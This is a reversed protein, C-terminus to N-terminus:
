RYWNHYKILFRKRWIPEGQKFTLFGICLYLRPVVIYVFAESRIVFM